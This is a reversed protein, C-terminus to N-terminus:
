PQIVIKLAQRSRAQEFATHIERLTYRASILRELHIRRRAILNMTQRYQHNSSGTTGTVVLQRYHVLNSRLTITESGKPLGGFFNIRGQVAALELAQEQAQPSPAAVIVSDARHGGTEASVRALLDEKAPNVVVDAGFARAQEAREDDIEGVIVPGAGVSKALLLHLLGIPGAGIVLVSEGADVHCALLGNYCCSLPENLAAEDFSVGDPIELVNGQRIAAAPVRLFEAFAGDVTIGFADYTPCLHSHGQICQDCIGCGMNPALAVRLGVRLGAVHSGVAAIEGAFEHGLIRATGERIKFHGNRLIRLDTACISAARVRLLAEDDGITPVACEEVRLDGIGNYIAALM